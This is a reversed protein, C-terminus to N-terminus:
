ISSNKSTESYKFTPEIGVLEVINPKDEDEQKTKLIKFYTLQCNALKM